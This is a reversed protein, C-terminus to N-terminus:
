SVSFDARRELTPAFTSFFDRTVRLAGLPGTGFIKLVFNEISM